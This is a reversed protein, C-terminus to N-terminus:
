SIWIVNAHRGCEKDRRYSFFWEGLSYTCLDLSFINDPRLGAEILQDRTLRWLDVRRTEENFYKEFESGFEESFNRFESAGPGLSPGRAAMVEAPDLSYRECFARVGSLPFKQVNGRWGVHLAAIYKGSTHALMLPQCDATKIVLALSPRSTASGDAEISGRDCPGQPHPDFLMDVGHIQKLEQCVACGSQDMLAKRNKLVDERHDGVDLSFNGQAFPGASAGGRRTQFACKVRPAGPFSFPILNLDM